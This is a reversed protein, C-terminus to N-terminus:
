YKIWIIKGRCTVATDKAITDIGIRLCRAVDLVFYYRKRSLCINEM